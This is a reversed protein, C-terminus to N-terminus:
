AKSLIDRIQSESKKIIGASRSFGAVGYKRSWHKIRSRLDKLIDQDILYKQKTSKSVQEDEYLEENFADILQAFETGDM